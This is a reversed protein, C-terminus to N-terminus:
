HTMGFDIQQDKWEPRVEFIYTYTAMLLPSLSMTHHGGIKEYVYRVTTFDQQAIDLTDQFYADAEEALTGRPAAQERHIQKIRDKDATSLLEFLTKLNHGEGRPFNLNRIKLLCKLEIEFIFSYLVLLPAIIQKNGKDQEIALISTAELFDNAMLLMQHETTILEKTM